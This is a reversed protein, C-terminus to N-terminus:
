LPTTKPFKVTNKKKPVGVLDYHLVRKKGACFWGSERMKKKIVSSCKWRLMKWQKKKVVEEVAATSYTKSLWHINVRTREKEVLELEFIMETGPVKVKKGHLREYTGTLMKTM